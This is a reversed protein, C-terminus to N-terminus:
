GGIWFILSALATVIAVFVTEAVRGAKILIQVIRPKSQFALEAQAEDYLRKEEQKEAELLRLDVYNGCHECIFGEPYRISILYDECSKENPFKEFFEVLNMQKM